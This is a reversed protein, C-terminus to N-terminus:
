IFVFQYFVYKVNENTKYGLFICLFLRAAREEYHIMPTVESQGDESDQSGSCRNQELVLM